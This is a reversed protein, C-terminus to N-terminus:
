GVLARSFAKEKKVANEIAKKQRVTHALPRSIARFRRRVRIPTAKNQMAEIPKKM